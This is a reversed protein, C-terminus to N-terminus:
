RALLVEIGVEGSISFDLTINLSIDTVYGGSMMRTVFVRTSGSESLTGTFIDETINRVTLAIAPPNSCPFLTFTSSHIADIYMEQVTNCTVMTCCEDDHECVALAADTNVM